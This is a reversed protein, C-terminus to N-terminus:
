RKWVMMKPIWTLKRPTNKQSFLSGFTPPSKYLVLQKKTQEPQLFRYYVDFLWKSEVVAVSIGFKPLFVQVKWKPHWISGKCFATLENVM